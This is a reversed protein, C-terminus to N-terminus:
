PFFNSSFFKAQSRKLSNSPNHSLKFKKIKKLNTKALRKKDNNKQKKHAMKKRNKQNKQQVIKKTL